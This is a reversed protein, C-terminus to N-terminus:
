ASVAVRRPSIKPLRPLTVELVGDRLSAEIKDTDVDDPLLLNREFTYEGRERHQLKWGDPVGLSRRGGVALQRGTVEVTLAEPAVGPLDANVVYRDGDERVHLGRGAAVGRPVDFTLPASVLADVDRRFAELEAFLPTEFWPVLM